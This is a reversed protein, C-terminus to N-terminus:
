EDDRFEDDNEEPDVLMGSMKDKLRSFFGNKKPKKGTNKAPIEYPDAAAPTDDIDAAAPTAPVTKASLCEKPNASAMRLVSLIDLMDVPSIRGDSIRLTMNPMGTRVRMGTLQELRESFGGLRSGGGTIIIGAPLEQASLDALRIQEKINLIIESARASVYNNIQTFDVGAVMNNTNDAGQPKANGGTKKLTEAYEELYNLSMIDRTILRSGLPLTVLYQLQGHRYISVSTTEAGLDVFMCGLRKEDPSVVFDAEAIPRVIYDVVNLGLKECIVREINKRLKDQCCILNFCAAVSRGFEGVPHVVTVRDITFQKPVATIVDKDRPAMSLAELKLEDILLHTIEMEEPLQRDVDRAVSCMSRGGIAVYVGTVVRPAIRNNIRELIRDITNAVKEVNRIMGHRVGDILNEQDVSVVTLNTNDIKGLVARIKSSGIELAVIHKDEM